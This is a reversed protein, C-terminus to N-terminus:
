AAGQHKSARRAAGWYEYTEQSEQCEICDDTCGMPCTGRLARIKDMAKKVRAEALDREAKMYELQTRMYEKDEAADLLSKYRQHDHNVPAVSTLGKAVKWAHVQGQIMRATIKKSTGQVSDWCIKWVEMAQRLSLGAENLARCQGENAPANVGVDTCATALKYADILQYARRITLEFRKFVYADFTKFGKAKYLKLDQLVSLAEGKKIYMLEATNYQDELEQMRAKMQKHNM